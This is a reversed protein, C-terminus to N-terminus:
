DLGRGEEKEERGKEEVSKGVNIGPRGNWFFMYDHPSPGNNVVSDM